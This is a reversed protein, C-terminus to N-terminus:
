VVKGARTEERRERRSEEIRERSWPRKLDKEDWTEITRISKFAEKNMKGFAAVCALRDEESDYSAMADKREQNWREEDSQTREAILKSSVRAQMEDRVELIQAPINDTEWFKTNTKCLYTCCKEYTEVDMELQLAKFWLQLVWDDRPPMGFAYLITTGKMFEEFTM